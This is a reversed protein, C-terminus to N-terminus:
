KFGHKSGHEANITTGQGIRNCCRGEKVIRWECNVMDAGEPDEERFCGRSVLSCGSRSVLVTLTLFIVRM